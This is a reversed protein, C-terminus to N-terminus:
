INPGLFQINKLAEVRTDFEDNWVDSLHHDWYARAYLRPMESTPSWGFFGRMKQMADEESIGGARLQSLRIVACTHRCDHASFSIFSESAVQIGQFDALTKQADPTLARSARQFIDGIGRAGLPENRNNLFLYPYRSIGRYNAVFHQIVEAVKQSVPIQRISQRNKIAPPDCARPDEDEYLNHINMWFRRQLTSPDNASKIANSPLILAEGRRLGQHLLLLLLCYNRWRQRIIRFPNRSSQPDFLSYIEGLVASPLARMRGAKQPSPNPSLNSYRTHMMAVRTRLLSAIEPDTALSSQEIVWFIFAKVATWRKTLDTRNQVARNREANFFSNLLLHVRDLDRTTLASDLNLGAFHVEVFVYFADIAALTKQATSRRASALCSIEYVTAWFRPLGDGRLAMARHLGPPVLDSKIIRVVMLRRRYILITRLFLACHASINSIQDDLHCWRVM